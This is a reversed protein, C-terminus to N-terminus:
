RLSVLNSSDHLAQDLAGNGTKGLDVVYSQPDAARSQPTTVAFAAAAFVAASCSIRHRAFSKAISCNRYCRWLTVGRGV